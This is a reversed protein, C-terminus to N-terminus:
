KDPVEEPKEKTKEKLYRIKPTIARASYSDPYEDLVQELIALAQETNTIKEECKALNVLAEAKNPFDNYDLSKTFYEKAKEYDGMNFYCNGQVFSNMSKFLPDNSQSTKVAKKYKDYYDLSKQYDDLSYYIAALYLYADDIIDVGKHKEVVQEFLKAAERNREEESNFYDLGSIIQDDTLQSKLPRFLINRAAIFDKAANEKNQKIWYNIGFGIILALIISVLLAIAANINEMLFDLARDTITLFEDRQKIQKRTLKIKKAM